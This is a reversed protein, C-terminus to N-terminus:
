RGSAPGSSRLTIVLFDSPAFLRFRLIDGGYGAGNSVVVPVGDKVVTGTRYKQGYESPIVPAYGFLTIQGGHTHGSLIMDFPSLDAEEAFDPNHSALVTPKGPDLIDRFRGMAPFADRVDNIGAIVLGSPTEVASEELVVIGARRLTRITKARGNYFDHNGIVAYVGHRSRFRAAEEAFSAIEATGRTNDGGIIIADAGEANVAAILRRFRTASFNNGYHIDSVFAVRYGDLEDPLGAVTIDIRRVRDVGLAPGSACSLYAFPLSFLAALFLVTNRARRTTNM